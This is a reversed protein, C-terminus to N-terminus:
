PRRRKRGVPMRGTRAAPAAAPPPKAPQPAQTAASSVPPAPPPLAAWRTQAHAAVREPRITPAAPPFTQVLAWGTPRGDAVLNAYAQFRGLAVFDDPQLDKSGRAFHTADEYETGFVIKTRANMDIASRLEKPFQRAFQAALFWGVGMSRSLALTDAMSTPLRLFRPAEDVYVFGPRKEPSRESAREQVAQWLDAVILSGVMEATGSGILAENLPVLVIANQRWIDRLRFRTDRQDLMRMLAPRLLLQRLKNLPASVASHQAAPSQGEYWGWFSALGEDHPVHALVSRRFGTDTLMRPIDALTAQIGSVAASRALSRLTGSFVDLTRPGFGDAFLSGFVSMIGDVVVDPDRGTVDLPNFGTPRDSSVDLVVVDDLRHQPIRALLDDILQRKPDLVAVSRGANIDALISALAVTSKGSNTPGYAVMHLLADKASVGVLREDGPALSTAFVREGTHVTSAPRLPKPHKTPMGPYDDDGLPWGLLGVLEACALELPWRRPRAAMGIARPNEHVFDMRVGVGKATFLASHLSSTLRRTRQPDSGTAGVRVVADFGADEARVQLLRREDGSAPRSGGLLITWWPENPSTAQPHVTRPPRRRGLLVQVVLVEGTRLRVGVASLLARSVDAPIDTRLPMSRPRLQMRGAEIVSARDPAKQFTVGPLHDRLLRKVLQVSEARCGVLHVVGDDSTARLELVVDQSLRDAGLTLLLTQVKATDLPRPLHFRTWVVTPASM